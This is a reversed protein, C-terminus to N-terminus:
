LKEALFSLVRQEEESKALHGTHVHRNDYRIFRIQEEMKMSITSRCFRCILYLYSNRRKRRFIKRQPVHMLSEAKEMNALFENFSVYKEELFSLPPFEFEETQRM